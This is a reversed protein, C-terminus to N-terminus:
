IAVALTFFMAASHTFYPDGVFMELGELSGLAPDHVPPSLHARPFVDLCGWIYYCHVDAPPPARQNSPEGTKSSASARHSRIRTSSCVTRSSLADLRM